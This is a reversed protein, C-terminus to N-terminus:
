VRGSAFRRSRWDRVRVQLLREREGFAGRLLARLDDARLFQKARLIKALAFVVFIEFEGFRNGARAGLSKLLERLFM